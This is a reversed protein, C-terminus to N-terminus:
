SCSPGPISDWHHRSKERGDLGARTGMWGRICHNGPREVPYLPRPTANVVWGGDLASTLSLTSSGRSGRQAKTTQELAFKLNVQIIIIIIIILNLCVYTM